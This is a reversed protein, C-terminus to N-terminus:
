PESNRTSASPEFASNLHPRQSCGASHLSTEVTDLKKAPTQSLDLLDFVLTMPDSAKVIPVFGFKGVNPLDVSAIGGEVVTLLPRIPHPANQLMVEIQVHRAASQAIGLAVALTVLAFSFLIQRM